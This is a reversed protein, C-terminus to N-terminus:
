ILILNYIVNLYKEVQIPLLINEKITKNEEGILEEKNELYIKNHDNEYNSNM